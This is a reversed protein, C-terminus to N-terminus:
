GKVVYKLFKALENVFVFIRTIFGNCFMHSTAIIQNTYDMVNVDVESVGGGFAM